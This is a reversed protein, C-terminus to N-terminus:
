ASAKLETFALEVPKGAYPQLSAVIAAADPSRLGLFREKGHDDVWSAIVPVDCIIKGQHTARFSFTAANNAFITFPSMSRVLRSTKARLVVMDGGLMEVNFNGCNFGFLPEIKAM